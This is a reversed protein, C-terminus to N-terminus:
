YRTITEQLNLIVRAVSTWAALQVPDLDEAVSANGESILQKAEDISEAFHNSHQVFVDRLEDAVVADPGRSVATRYAWTIKQDTSDGGERMIRAAFVRAAEVFTPDNLLTLAQLPTNSRSRQATCEERSPADFAKLMPHLFTRQWHTYVGRRYQHDGDDAAYERRPFNLQAYYGPPQYPRASTGGVQEVLLGSIALASDRVMEAAIRFRGQRAFLENYPDSERLEPSPKSSRQYAQSSAILKMIHKIDWGSEVFEVALWDLLEPHSPYTGQGGFDDVSSCIGRGLMLFWLRNVMTRATLVNDPECLWNALDLRTPRADGTELKGLFEPIAPGVVEGSNDMWNGRPLIRIERPEVSRSVVMTTASEEVKTRNTEADAIQKRLDVMEDAGDIYHDEVAKEQEDTRESPNIAIAKAVTSPIGAGTYGAQDWHVLGGFQTYAMGKVVTGVPLGLQLPDAELRVWKGTNPLGGARQYGVWSDARKGYSIDDSGWVARHEWDGDNFQLMLAKPPNKSDLHVWVYFKMGAQVTAKKRADDFFHQVLGDSQQSRSKSGSHVPVGKGSVFNWSGNNKGGTDQADDIWVTDVSENGEIENRTIAEWESQRELLQQRLPAVRANLAALKQDAEALRRSDDDSPVRITPPRSRAGYVGREDLDAFFAGLSYFDKATYPDYKHDHCQACGVTAGMFVQSVNRVRDAFYIALYEKAQSGGEETTQNLRNYGSAVQQDLTPDALLDGALQERVFRDYPMNSNFANIVYSRYPSQSVDQDGHYGVTDAFRVLDLWYIAMREGYRRSNLLRDIVKEDANESADNVYENVEEVTPPLGTLDFSLRRILTVRDAEAVPQVSSEVLRQNVFHDIGLSKSDEERKLPTYAWHSEYEAGETIWRRLTQQEIRTLPKHSEPPPMVMQEDDSFIRRVLSSKDADGPVIAETEIARARLDLRLDGEVTKADPGHCAFCKDSLISRIDRNFELSSEKANCFSAMVLFFFVKM